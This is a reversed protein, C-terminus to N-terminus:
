LTVTNTEVGGNLVSVKVQYQGLFNNLLSGGYGKMYLNYATQPDTSGAIYQFNSTYGSFGGGPTIYVPSNNNICAVGPLLCTRVLKGNVYTDMTRGYVSVLLQTWNQLPINSISCTHVVTKTTTTDTSDPVTDQNPYCGLLISLNNELNGLVIAPCPDLGEIQNFSPNAGSTNTDPQTRGLRGLVVKPEGYRYNWDNIYIWIMYTFNASNTTNQALDTAEIKTMTQANIVSTTKNGLGTTFYLIVLYLIFLSV